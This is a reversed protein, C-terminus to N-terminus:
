ARPCLANAPGLHEDTHTHTHTHSKRYQYTSSLCSPIGGRAWVMGCGNTFPSPPRCQGVSRYSPGMLFRQAPNAAAAAADCFMNQQQAAPTSSAMYAQCGQTPLVCGTNRAWQLPGGVATWNGIYWGSDELLALTLRSLRPPEGATSFTSSALMLEGQYHTYERCVCVCVCVSACM